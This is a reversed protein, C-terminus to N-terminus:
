NKGFHLGVEHEKGTSQEPLIRLCWVATKMDKGGNRQRQTRWKKPCHGYIRFGVVLQLKIHKGNWQGTEKGNSEGNNPIITGM